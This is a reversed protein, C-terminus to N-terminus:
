LDQSIVTLVVFCEEMLFSSSNTVSLYWLQWVILKGCAAESSCAWASTKPTKTLNTTKKQWKLSLTERMQLPSLNQQRQDSSKTNFLLLKTWNCHNWQADPPETLVLHDTLEFLVTCTTLWHKFFLAFWLCSRPFAHTLFFIQASRNPNNNEQLIGKFVLVNWSLRSIWPSQSVLKQGWICAENNWILSATEVVVHTKKGGRM